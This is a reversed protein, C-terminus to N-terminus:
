LWKKNSTYLAFIYYKYTIREIELLQSHVTYKFTLLFRFPKIFADNRGFYWCLKKLSKQGLYGKLLPWILFTTNSLWFLIWWNTTYNAMHKQNSRMKSTLASIRLIKQQYKQLFSTKRFNNRNKSIKLSWVFEFYNKWASTKELFRVFM